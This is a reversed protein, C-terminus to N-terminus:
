QENNTGGNTTQNNKIASACDYLVTIYNLLEIVFEENQYLKPTYKRLFNGIVKNSNFLEKISLSNRLTLFEQAGMPLLPNYNMIMRNVTNFFQDDDTINQPLKSLIDKTIVIKFNERAGLIFFEYLNKIMFEDDEDYSGDEFVPVSITLKTKFMEAMFDVFNQQMKDLIEKYEQPHEEDEASHEIYSEYLEKYFIDVYNTKDEINIYDTFQEKLGDIITDFPTDGILANDEILETFDSPQDYNVSDVESDESGSTTRNRSSEAFVFDDDDRPYRDYGDGTISVPLGIAM